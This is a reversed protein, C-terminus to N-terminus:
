VLLLALNAVDTSEDLQIIFLGSEIEDVVDSLIGHSM